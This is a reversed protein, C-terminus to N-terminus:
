EQAEYGSLRVEQLSIREADRSVAVHFSQGDRRIVTVIGLQPWPEHSLWEVNPPYGAALIREVIEAPSLSFPDEAGLEDALLARGHGSFYSYYFM